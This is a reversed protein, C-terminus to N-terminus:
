AEDWDKIRLEEISKDFWEEIKAKDKPNTPDLGKFAAILKPGNKVALLIIEGIIAALGM